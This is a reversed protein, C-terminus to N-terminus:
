HGRYRGATAKYFRRAVLTRPLLKGITAILKNANGAIVAPQGKFLADLGIVAVKAPLLATRRTAPTPQFGSAADFGTEMYGPSLVTVGVKPALEVHLAEGLSLVYAKSAGYAALLPAPMHAVVSAVLLIHGGEAAMMRQGYFRTLETLALINLRLMSAVRDADQEAFRAHLGFGANNVVVTPSLGSADLAATLEKVGEAQSLDAPQVVVEVGQSARIREALAAMADAKRATLVLAYGRRALDEAFASGLGGSAGTVLAIKKSNM